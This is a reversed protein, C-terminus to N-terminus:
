ITYKMCTVCEMEERELDSKLDRLFDLKAKFHDDVNRKVKVLARIREEVSAREARIEKLERM